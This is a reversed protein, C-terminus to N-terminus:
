PNMREKECFGNMKGCGKFAIVTLDCSSKETHVRGGNRVKVVQVYDV